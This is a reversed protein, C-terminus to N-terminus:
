SGPMPLHQVAQLLEGPDAGAETQIVVIFKDFGTPPMKVVIRM